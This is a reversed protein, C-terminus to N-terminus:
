RLRRVLLMAAVAGLMIAPLALSPSENVEGVTQTSSAKPDTSSHDHNVLEVGVVDGQKLGTFTFSTKTTAYEGEAPKGNVLYHIHGEGKVNSSKQGVPVLSFKSVDVKMTYSGGDAPPTTTIKVSHDALVTPATMLAASVLLIAFITLRSRNQM